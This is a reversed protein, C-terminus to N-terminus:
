RAPGAPKVLGFAVAADDFIKAASLASIIDQFYEISYHEAFVRSLASKPGVVFVMKGHSLAAGLEIAAGRLVDANGIFLVMCSAARIEELCREALIGKDITQGEGAEDIWTSNIPLGTSRAVLWMDYYSSKSAVYIM